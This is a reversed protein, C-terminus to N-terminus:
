RFNRQSSYQRLLLGLPPQTWNEGAQELRDPADNSLQLKLSAAVQAKTAM